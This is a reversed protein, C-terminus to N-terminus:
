LNEFFDDDFDSEEDAAETAAELALQYAQSANTGSLMKNKLAEGIIQGARKLTRRMTVSLTGVAAINEPDSTEGGSKLTNWTCAATYVLHVSNKSRVAAFYHPAWLTCYRFTVDRDPSTETREFDNVIEVIKNIAPATIDCYFLALLRDLSINTAYKLDTLMTYAHMGTYSFPLFCLYSLTGVEHQTLGETHNQHTNAIAHTFTQSILTQSALADKLTAAQQLNITFSSMTDSPGYFNEYRSKMNAVGQSVNEASKVCLRMLFAAIFSYASCKKADTDGNVRLNANQATAAVAAGAPQANPDVQVNRLTFPTSSFLTLQPIATAPLANEGEVPRTQQIILRNNNGTNMSKLSLALRLCRVATQVSISDNTINRVFENGFSLIQADDLHAESWIRITSFLSPDWNAPPTGRLAPSAGAVAALSEPITVADISFGRSM